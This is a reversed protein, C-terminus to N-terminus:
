KKFPNFGSKYLNETSLFLPQPLNDWNFWAWKEFKDPEMLTLEWKDFDSVMVITVYHKNNEKYIDNTVIWLSLNKISIWTEEFTERRACEEWSESYELHWGPFSWTGNWHSSKRKWVLVKNDKIVIVGVWVKPRNNKM